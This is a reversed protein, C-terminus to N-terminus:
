LFSRNNDKKFEASSNWEKIKKGMVHKEVRIIQSNRYFLSFGNTEDNEFQSKKNVEENSNYFVWWNCKKNNKFHGEEKKNGNEFYYFWYDVKKNQNLWGESKTKGNEYYEKYYSKQASVKLFALLILIYIGKKV